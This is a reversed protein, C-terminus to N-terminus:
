AFLYFDLKAIATALHKIAPPQSALTIRNTKDLIASNSISPKKSPELLSNEPLAFWPATAVAVAGIYEGAGTGPNPWPLSQEFSWPWSAIGEAVLSDVLFDRL